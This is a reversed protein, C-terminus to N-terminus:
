SGPEFWIRRLGDSSTLTRNNTVYADDDWIYGAKWLPAYAIALAALLLAAFLSQRYPVPIRTVPACLRPLRSLAFADCFSKGRAAPRALTRRSASFDSSWRRPM